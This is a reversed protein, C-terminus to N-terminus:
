GRQQGKEWYLMERIRKLIAPVAEPRKISENQRWNVPDGFLEHYLEACGRHSFVQAERNVRGACIRVEDLLRRTEQLNPAAFVIVRTRKQEDGSGFRGKVKRDALFEREFEALVHLCEDDNAMVTIVKWCNFAQGLDVLTKGEQLQEYLNTICPVCKGYIDRKTEELQPTSEFSVWKAAKDAYYRKDLYFKGM